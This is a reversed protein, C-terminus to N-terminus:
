LARPCRLRMHRCRLSGPRQIASSRWGVVDFDVWVDPFKLQALYVGSPSFLHLTATGDGFEPPEQEWVAVHEATQLAARYSPKEQSTTRRSKALAVAIDAPVGLRSARGRFFEEASELEEETALQVGRAAGFERRIGGASDLLQLVLQACNLRLVAREGASVRSCGQDSWEPLLASPPFPPAVLSLQGSAFLHWGSPSSVLYQEPGYTAVTLVM